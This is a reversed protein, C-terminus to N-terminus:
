KTIKISDVWFTRGKLDSHEISFELRDIEKWSFDGKPPNWTQTKNVWGGTEAMANLPIKITRWKADPPLNFEDITYSMRWPISDNREPMVFRVEFKLPKDAKAKFEVAYGDSALKTFDANRSFAFWFNNYQDANHCRIAFEGEATDMDYFSFVADDAGWFGTYINKGTFDDFITFGTKLPEIKRTIQQPPTFGLAKVIDVSLDSYFDGKLGDNFIGFGGYYDWSTRSINRRDLAKTIFEYWIVRDNHNSNPIFVGYEGCFVPANRENSFAATKDLIATLHEASSDREYNRLSGEIWTGRLEPPAKPMRNANYPFPIGSLYEMPPSWSAGQHTFLFPDYFHFTYIIKQDDYIPISSLKNFSNYDTGGVIIWHKKDHKRIANIARGQIDGWLADYIGHPENLIEYVVYDSRNRYRQAIQEWVPILVKDVDSSLPDVPHFCHNDIIIYIEYKEAWNVAMDLLKLFVPSLLYAPAGNTMDNLRVPLRIVDVGLSKANIFDDETYQNFPIRLPDTTEFWGSFNVGKSFPASVAAPTVVGDDKLNEKPKEVSNCAAFILLTLASLIKNKM